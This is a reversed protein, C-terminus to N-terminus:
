DKLTLLIPTIASVPPLNQEPVNYLEWRISVYILLLPHKSFILFNEIQHAGLNEWKPLLSSLFNLKFIKVEDRLFHSNALNVSKKTIRLNTLM